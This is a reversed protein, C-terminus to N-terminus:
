SHFVYIRSIIEATKPVLESNRKSWLGYGKLMFTRWPINDTASIFRQINDVEHFKPVSEKFKLVNQLEDKIVEWNERILKSEPFNKELDLYPPNKVFLKLLQSYVLIIIGPMIFYALILLVAIVLLVIGLVKFIM